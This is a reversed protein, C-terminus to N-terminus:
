SSTSHKVAYNDLKQLFTGIRRESRIAWRLYKKNLPFRPFPSLVLYTTFPFRLWVRILEYDHKSLKAVQRYGNLIAKAIAFDWHYDKCSNYIVRYLDFARLDIHLTEFDILHTGKVNCIFNSPGGDGHSLVGFRGPKKCYKRYNSHRLLRRAQNSYRLIEAGHEQVFSNISPRFENRKAKKIKKKLFKHQALLTSKWTGIRSYKMGGLIEDKGSEHMRALAEGCARMDRLSTPSPERGSLWPTLVFPKGKSSLVYLKRGERTQPNRWSILVGRKRIRQLVQDTWKLRALRKPMRKLSFSQHDCTIVRYIGKRIKKMRSVELGFGDAINFMRENM